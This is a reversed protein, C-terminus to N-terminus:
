DRLLVRRERGVARGEVFLLWSLSVELRRRDLRRRQSRVRRVMEVDSGDWVLCRAM